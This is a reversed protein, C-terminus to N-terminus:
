EAQPPQPPLDDPAIVPTEGSEPPAITIDDDGAPEPTLVGDCPDLMDSLTPDDTPDLPTEDPTVLGDGPQPAVVCDEPGAMPEDDALATLPSAVFALAAIAPILISPFTM